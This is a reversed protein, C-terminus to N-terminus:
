IISLGSFSIPGIVNARHSLVNNTIEATLTYSLYGPPATLDVFSLSALNFQNQSLSTAKATSILINGRIFSYLVDPEGLTTQTGVTANLIVQGDQEVQLGFQALILSSPSSLIPLLTSDTFEAPVSRGFDVIQFM